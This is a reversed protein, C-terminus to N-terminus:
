FRGQDMRQMRSPIFDNLLRRQAFRSSKTLTGPPVRSHKCRARTASPGFTRHHRQALQELRHNFRPPFCWRPACSGSHRVAVKRGHVLGIPQGRRNGKSNVPGVPSFCHCFDVLELCRGLFGMPHLGVQGRGRRRLSFDDAQVAVRVCESCRHQHALGRVVGAFNAAPFVEAELAQELPRCLLEPRLIEEHQFGTGVAELEARPQVGQAQARHNQLAAVNALVGLAVGVVVFHSGRADRQDIQGAVGRAHPHGVLLAALATLQEMGIAFRDGVAGRGAVRQPAKEVAVGDAGGLGVELQFAGTLPDKFLPVPRGHLPLDKGLVKAIQIGAFLAALAEVPEDSGLHARFGHHQAAQPHEAHAEDVGERQQGNNAVHVAELAGFFEDGVNPEVGALALTPRALVDFEAHAFSATPVEAMEEDLPSLGNQAHAAGSGQALPAPFEEGSFAVAVDGNGGNGALEQDLDPVHERAVRGGGQFGVFAESEFEVLQGHGESGGQTAFELEAVSQELADLLKSASGKLGGEDCGSFSRVLVLWNAPPQAGGFGAGSAAAPTGPPVELIAQRRCACSFVLVGLSKEQMVVHGDDASEVLFVRRM